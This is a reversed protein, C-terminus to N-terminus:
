FYGGGGVYGWNAGEVAHAEHAADLWIAEVDYNAAYVDTDEDDEDDCNTTGSLQEIGFEGSFGHDSRFEVDKEATVEQAYNCSGQDVSSGVRWALQM